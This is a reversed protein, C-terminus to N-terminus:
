RQGKPGSTMHTRSLAAAPWACLKARENMWCAGQRKMEGLDTHAHTTGPTANWSALAPGGASGPPISLLAFYPSRVKSSGGGITAGGDPDWDVNCEGLLYPEGDVEILCRGPEALAPGAVLLAALALAYRM